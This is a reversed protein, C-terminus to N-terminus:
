NESESIDAIYKEPIAPVYYTEYRMFGTESDTDGGAARVDFAYYPMFINYSQGALYILRCKKIRVDKPLEGDGGTYDGKRLLAEAEEATILPYEEIEEGCALNDVMVITKLDGNEDLFFSMQKLNYNIVEEKRSDSGDYGMCHWLANGEDDYEVRVSTEPEEFDMLGGFRELLYVTAAEAQTRTRAAASVRYKEPLTLSEEFEIVASCSSIVSIRGRDTAAEAEYAGSSDGEQGSARFYSINEVDMDLKQAIDEIARNLEEDSVSAAPEDPDFSTNAYVPLTELEMDESWPNGDELESPSSIKRERKNEKAYRREITLAPLDSLTVKEKEAGKDPEAEGGFLPLCLLGILLCAAAGYKLRRAPSRRRYSEAEEIFNEDIDGITSLFDKKKM